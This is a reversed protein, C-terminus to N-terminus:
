MVWEVDYPHVLVVASRLIAGRHSQRLVKVLYSENFGYAAPLVEKVVGVFRVPTRWDARRAFSCAVVSGAKINSSM